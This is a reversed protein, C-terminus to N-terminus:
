PCRVGVHVQAKVSLARGSREVPLGAGLWGGNDNPVAGARGSYRACAAFDRSREARSQQCAEGILIARGALAFEQDWAQPSTVPIARVAARKPGIRLTREYRMSRLREGPCRSRLACNGSDLQQAATLSRVDALDPYHTRRIFMNRAIATPPAM